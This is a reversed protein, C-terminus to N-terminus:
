ITSKMYSLFLMSMCGVSVLMSSAYPSAHQRQLLSRQVPAQLLSVDDEDPENLRCILKELRPIIEVEM